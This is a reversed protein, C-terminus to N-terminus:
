GEKELLLNVRCRRRETVVLVSSVVGEEIQLM